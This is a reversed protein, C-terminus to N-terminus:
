VLGLRKAVDQMEPPVPVGAAVAARYAERMANRELETVNVTPKVSNNVKKSLRLLASKQKTTLAAAVPEIITPM